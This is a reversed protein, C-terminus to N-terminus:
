RRGIARRGAEREMRTREPMGEDPDYAPRVSPVSPPIREAEVIVPRNPPPPAVVEPPPPVQSPANRNDLLRQLEEDGPVFEEVMTDGAKQLEARLQPDEAPQNAIAVNKPEPAKEALVPAARPTITPRDNM